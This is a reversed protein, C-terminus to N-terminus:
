LYDIVQYELFIQLDQASFHNCAKGTVSEDDHYFMVGALCFQGMMGALIFYVLLRKEGVRYKVWTQAKIYLVRFIAVLCSWQVYGSLSLCGGLPLWDCFTSGFLSGLSNEYLLTLAAMPLNFMGSITGSLQQFWILWNIPTSKIDVVRLYNLIIVRCALGGIIIAIIYIGWVVRWPYPFNLLFAHDDVYIFNSHNKFTPDNWAFLLDLSM